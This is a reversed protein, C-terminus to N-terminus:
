CAGSALTSDGSDPESSPPTGGATLAGMKWAKVALPEILIRIGAVAREAFRNRSTAEVEALRHHKAFKLLGTLREPADVYRDSWKVEIAKEVDGKPALLVLDVEAEKWRAYHMARGAHFRQAVLATEALAGMGPDDAGLPAFLAARLSPNTLYVKDTNSRQLVRAGLDVRHVLRILFAAELYELYKKLTNRSLGAEKELRDMAVEGGSNWALRTFLQNLEQTDGISYLQPLDRLLVKDIIDSKIYRSPDARVVASLAAEPYGGYNAYDVFATNLCGIDPVAVTGDTAVVPAGDFRTLDLYEAFTLPPLLFDTFRGAGSERSKLRLAAAASGSVVIRLDPYDDVLRKLHIEWDRLYQIEDFFVWRIPQGSADAALQVLRELSLGMYLPLDVSVYAISGPANGQALLTAIAHHLLVTKGVRRPGLLVVARRVTREQILALLSPLYARPRHDAFQAGVRHPPDWWPSEVRLRRVVESEPILEM